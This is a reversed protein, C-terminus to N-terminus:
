ASNKRGTPAGLTSHPTDLTRVARHTRLGPRRIPGRLMLFCFASIRFYVEYLTSRRVTVRSHVTACLAVSSLAVDGADGVRTHVVGRVGLEFAWHFAWCVTAGARIRFAWSMALEGDPGM